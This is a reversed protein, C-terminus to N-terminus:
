KKKKKNNNNDDVDPVAVVEHREIMECERILKNKDELTPVYGKLDFTKRWAAPLSWELMVLLDADDYKSEPTGGPFLPLLNNIRSIASATKRTSLGGPKKMYRQMWLCQLELARHPFVTEAVAAIAEDIHAVTLPLQADGDPNNCADELAAEFATLSKGKLVAKMTAARDSPGNTSNQGWILRIEGVLLIWQQPSGEEFIRVYKKYSNNAAPAGARTRVDLSIFKSKNDEQTDMVEPILALVPKFAGGQNSSNKRYKGAKFRGLRAMPTMDEEQQAVLFQKEKFATIIIRKYLLGFATKPTIKNDRKLLM